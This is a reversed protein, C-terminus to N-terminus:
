EITGQQKALSMEYEAKVDEYFQAHATYMYPMLWLYGIGLTIMALLWWGIFSLSLVFLQWKHGKMIKQSYMICDYSGMEPHDKAIYFAMSYAITM